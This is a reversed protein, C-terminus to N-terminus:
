FIPLRQRMHWHRGRRSRWHLGRRASDFPHGLMPHPHRAAFEEATISMNIMYRVHGRLVETDAVSGLERFGVVGHLALSGLNGAYVWIDCKRYGCAGFMHALLVVISDTAYGCRRFMPAIGVTYSFSGANSGLECVCLSGVVMRNRLSEIAFHHDGRLDAGSTRHTAWFQHGGVPASAGLAASARDFRVFAGHDAPEINRLRTKRGCLTSMSGLSSGRSNRYSSHAVM